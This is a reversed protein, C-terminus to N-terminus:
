YPRRGVARTVKELVEAVAPNSDLAALAENVQQLDTELDAKRRTLQERFTPEVAKCAMMDTREMKAGEMVM